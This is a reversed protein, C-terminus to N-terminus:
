EDVITERAERGPGEPYVGARGERPSLRGGPIVHSGKQDGELGSLHLRRLTARGSLQCRGRGWWNGRDLRASTVM